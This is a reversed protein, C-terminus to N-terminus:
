NTEGMAPAAVPAFAFRAGDPRGAMALDDFISVPSECTPKLANAAALSQTFVINFHEALIHKCRFLVSQTPLRLPPLMPLTCALLTM